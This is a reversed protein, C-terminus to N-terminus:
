DVESLDRQYDISPTAYSVSHCPQEIARREGARLALEVLSIPITNRRCM